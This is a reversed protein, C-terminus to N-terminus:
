IYVSHIHVHVRYLYKIYLAAPVYMIRCNEESGMISTNSLTYLLFTYHYHRRVTVRQALIDIISGVM